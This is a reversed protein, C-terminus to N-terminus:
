IASCHKGIGAMAGGIGSSSHRERRARLRRTLLDLERHRSIPADGQSIICSEGPQNILVNIPLGIGASPGDVRSTASICRAYNVKIATAIGDQKRGGFAVLVIDRGRLLRRRNRRSSWSWCDTEGTSHDVEPEGDLSM